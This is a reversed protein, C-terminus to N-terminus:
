LLPIDPCLEIELQAACAPQRKAASLAGLAKAARAEAEKAAREAETAAREGAEARAQAEAIGRATEENIRALADGCTATQARATAVQAMLDARIAEGAELGATKGSDRIAWVAWALLGAVAVAAAIRGWPILNM